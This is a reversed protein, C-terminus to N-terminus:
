MVGRIYGGGDDPAARNDFKAELVKLANGLNLAWDFDAKWGRDGGGTLFASARIRACYARWQGLDRGFEGALRARLHGRRADSLKVCRGLRDGCVDNWIAVADDLLDAQPADLPLVSPTHVGNLKDGQPVRGGAPPRAANAAEKEKSERDRDRPHLSLDTANDTVSVTVANDSNNHRRQTRAQRAAETRQRQSQKREWSARAKEAVVPHYLRGDSCKVWGRLVRERVKPWARPDCMAADALVDDDDELSAAPLEHWAAVWLNVMYFGLAPEKRAILWAKSRRLRACEIPMFLFDRLDCDPPTLPPPLDDSM